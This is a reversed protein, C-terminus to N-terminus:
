GHPQSLLAQAATIVEDAAIAAMCQAAPCYQPAPGPFRECRRAWPVIRLYQINQDRCHFDAVTVARYPSDRWFEGAGCMLASGPGFLTVTPVGIVRGLHAVGTDPCVLLAAHKLLHWLQPLDLQGALSLYQGQPDAARVLETEGRGASWVVQLGQATLQQALLRWKEPSWLKLESSAGLHLVAYPQPPLAFAKSPPAPWGAAQYPAPRPGDLLEATTDGWATPTVSYPRLEDVLWNKWAPKDGAFAVIWRAGLARALWSYRNDAPLCVLDPRPLRLLAWQTTVDRPDFPLADVGYPRGAYLPVFAKPMAMRLRAQPYQERLKALLPTVMITDGLLLHHLVLIERMEGPKRRLWSFPLRLLVLLFTLWRGPARSNKFGSM